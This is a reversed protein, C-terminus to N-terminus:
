QLKDNFSNENKGGKPKHNNELIKKRRKKQRKRQEIFFGGTDTITLESASVPKILDKIIQYGKSGKNLTDM